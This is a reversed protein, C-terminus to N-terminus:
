SKSFAIDLIISGSSSVTLVTGIKKNSGVTLTLAGNTDCYVADGVTATSTDLASHVLGFLGIEGSSNHAIDSLVLGYINDSAITTIATINPVNYPAQFGNAKVCTLANITSGTRNVGETTHLNKKVKENMELSRVVTGLGYYAISISVNVKSSHFYLQGNDYDVRFENVSPLGSTIETYGSIQINGDTTPRQGPLEDLQIFYYGNDEIITHIETLYIPFYEDLHKRYNVVNQYTM